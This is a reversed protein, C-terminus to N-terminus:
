ADDFTPQSQGGSPVMGLKRTATDIGRLLCLVDPRTKLWADRLQALRVVNEDNQNRSGPLRFMGGVAAALTGTAKEASEVIDPMHSEVFGASKFPDKQGDASDRRAKMAIGVMNANVNAQLLSVLGRAAATVRNHATTGISM